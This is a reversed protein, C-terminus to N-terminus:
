NTSRRKKGSTAAPTSRILMMGFAVAEVWKVRSEMGYVCPRTADTAHDANAKTTV